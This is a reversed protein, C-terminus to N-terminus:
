RLPLYTLLALQGMIRRLHVDLAAYAKWNTIWPKAADFLEKLAPSRIVEQSQVVQEQVSLAKADLPHDPNEDIAKDLSKLVNELQSVVKLIQDPRTGEDRCRYAMRLSFEGNIGEYFKGDANFFGKNLYDQPKTSLMESLEM